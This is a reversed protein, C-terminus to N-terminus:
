KSRRLLVYLAGTGGDAPAAHSFSLVKDRNPAENLWRPVAEKLVGQGDKLLGKGTIVLVCRRESGQSAAVFRSLARHAVTQTMGHLDIRDHIEVKGRRMRRQTRKDLDGSKGPALKPRVPAPASAPAQSRRRPAETAEAFNKAVVPSTDEADDWDLTDVNPVLKRKTRKRLPEADKM